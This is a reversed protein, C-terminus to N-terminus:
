PTESGLLQKIRRHIGRQPVEDTVDGVIEGDPEVRERGLGRMFLLWEVGTVQLGEQCRVFAEIDDPQGFGAASAWLGLNQVM